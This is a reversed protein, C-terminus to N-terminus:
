SRELLNRASVAGPVLDRWPLADVVSGLIELNKEWSIDEDDKKTLLLNSRPLGIRNLQYGYITTQIQWDWGLTFSPKAVSSWETFGSITTVTGCSKFRNNEDLDVGSILHNIPTSLLEELTLHILGDLSLQM